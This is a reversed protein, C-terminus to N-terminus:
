AAGAPDAGSDQMLKRLGDVVRKRLEPPVPDRCHSKIVQRLEAEFDFVELCPNCDDLHQRIRFRREETLEGDLFVSLEALVQQCDIADHDHHHDGHSMTPDVMRERHPTSAM